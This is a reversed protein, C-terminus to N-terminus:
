DTTLRLTQAGIMVFVIVAATEAIPIVAVLRIITLVALVAVLILLRRM